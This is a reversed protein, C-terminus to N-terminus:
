IDLGSLADGLSGFTGGDDNRERFKELAARVDLREAEEEEEAIRFKNRRAEREARAKEAAALEEATPVMRLSIRKRDPDISDIRVELRQDASLIQSPHAIRRGRAIAGIPLLGEVGPELEVFAGFPELRVVKGEMTAGVQATSLFTDLPNTQTARLSLSIRNREWDIQRVLVEVTQGVSVIDSPKVNRQWSLERLPVLGEAGGIDVFFGFDALRTVKGTRTEGEELSAKLAERKEAMQRELLARRSVILNKEEPDYESVLFLFTKGVYEAGDERHLAMQSYPCFGRTKGVMIEYGGNVEGQVRGEVPLGSEFAGAVTRDAGGAAPDEGHAFLLAGNSMGTFIVDVMDGPKLERLGGDDEGIPLIGEEKASVDLVLAEPGVSIVRARVHEGPNFGKNFSAFQKDLLAEFDAMSAKNKM